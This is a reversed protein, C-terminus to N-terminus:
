CKREGLGTSGYLKIIMQQISFLKGPSKAEGFFLYLDNTFLPSWVFGHTKRMLCLVVVVMLKSFM